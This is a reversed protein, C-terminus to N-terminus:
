RARRVQGPTRRAPRGLPQARRPRRALPAAPAAKAQAPRVDIQLGFGECDALGADQHLVLDADFFGLGAVTVPRERGIVREHFSEGRQALALKRVARRRAGLILGPEGGEAPVLATLVQNSVLPAHRNVGLPIGVLEPPQEPPDAQAPDGQV